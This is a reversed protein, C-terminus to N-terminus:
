GKVPKVFIRSAIGRGLALSVGRVSIQIPGYFPATRRILIETGPTLGMESLRKILGKGGLAYVIIAKEGEKLTTLPCTEEIYGELNQINKHFIALSNGNFGHRNQWHISFNDIKGEIFRTIRGLLGAKHGYYTHIYAERHKLVENLGESTVHIENDDIKILGKKSAEDIIKKAEELTINFEKIIKKLEVKEGKRELTVLFELVEIL